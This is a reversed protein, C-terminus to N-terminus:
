LEGFDVLYVASIEASQLSYGAAKLAKAADSKGLKPNAKKLEDLKAAAAANIPKSGNLAALIAARAALWQADRADERAKLAALQAAMDDLRKGIYLPDRDAIFSAPDKYAALVAAYLDDEGTFASRVRAVYDGSKVKFDYDIATDYFLHIGEPVSATLDTGGVTFSGPVLTIELRDTSNTARLEAIVLNKWSRLESVLSRLGDIRAASPEAEAAFLVKGGSEDTLVITSSAVSSGAEETFGSGAFDFAAASLASIALAFAFAARKM